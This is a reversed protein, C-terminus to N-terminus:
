VMVAPSCSNKPTRTAAIGCSDPLRTHGAFRTTSTDWYVILGGRPASAAIISSGPDAAISGIYNKLRPQIEAPTQFTELDQGRRHSGILAPQDLKAGQYQCGFAVLDDSTVAMHRISLQHLSAPLHYQELLEGTFSDIYSINPAMSALNLKTRGSDPHTAIGGNAVVLTRNDSLLCIEHPGIGFSQFEGIHRYGNSVDRVGIIGVSADFDNETSYLLRGDHSFVGHGYFHREYETSMLLPAHGLRTNNKNFALAFTGPRRAFTVCAGTPKHYSAAHGRAPM